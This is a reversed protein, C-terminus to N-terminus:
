GHLRFRNGPMRVIANQDELDFLLDSVQSVPYGLRLVLQDVSLGDSEGLAQLLQEQEPTYVPFLQPEGSSKDLVSKWGLCNLIDEASTVLAARNERIFQNCGASYADTTRGPIAMVERGYGSALTATILAGGKSASEVVLTASSIGAVIRNRRVFKGKDPISGSIYETLLGGHRTMEGATARHVQPYIRDLGHALVGVTDLGNALAARHAHIDVGYALGSVVFLDPLMRGLDAFISECMQKGYETIQRTGVVSLMHRRNLSGTGCYFLNVPADAVEDSKLLEPYDDSSYPLISIHHEECFEVERLARERAESLAKRDKLVEAWRECAPSDDTLAAEASGYYHLLALAQSQTLGQILSLQISSLNEIDSKM